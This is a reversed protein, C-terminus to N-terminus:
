SEYRAEKNEQEMEKSETNEQELEMSEKNEQMNEQKLEKSSYKQFFYLLGNSQAQEKLLMVLAEQDFLSCRRKVIAEHAINRLDKNTPFYSRNFPQPPRELIGDNLHQPILEKRVWDQIAMKLSIPTLRVDNVLSKIKNEIEPLPKNCLQDTISTPTHNEHASSLPVNVELIETDDGIVLLRTRIVAPCTCCRSGPANRRKLPNEIEAKLRGKGGRFCNYSKSWKVMYAEYKGDIHLTGHESKTNAQKGTHVSYKTDSQKCYKGYWEGFKTASYELLYGTAYKVSSLDTTDDVPVTIGLSELEQCSKPLSLITNEGSLISYVLLTKTGNPDLHHLEQRCKSNNNGEKYCKWCPAAKPQTHSKLVRCYKSSRKGIVCELCRGLLEINPMGAFLFFIVPRM